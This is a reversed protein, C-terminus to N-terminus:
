GNLSQFFVLGLGSLNDPRVSVTDLLDLSHVNHGTVDDLHGHTVLDGGVESQDLDVGGGEANVLGDQGSLRDGHDLM